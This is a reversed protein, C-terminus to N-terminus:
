TANALREALRPPLGAKLIKNQARALDYPLRRLEISHVDTDYIVYAARWDGDRPQGVSGVNIFYKKKPEIKFKRYSFESVHDGDKIYVRPVHTHGHFCVDTKQHEFSLDADEGRFVYNWNHPRDLSAHVVTFSEIPRQYPLGRLFDKAEKSLQSRTYDMSIQALDNFNSADSLESAEEDHNGKVVPCGLARVIELCERPNANYGVVDGICITHTVAQTQMDELVSEFAELNSHIDGFIGFRM